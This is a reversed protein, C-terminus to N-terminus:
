HKGPYRSSRKVCSVRHSVTKKKKGGARNYSVGCFECANRFKAKSGKLSVSIASSLITATKPLFKRVIPRYLTHDVWARKDPDYKMWGTETLAVIKKGTEKSASEQPNGGLSSMFLGLVLGFIKYNLDM